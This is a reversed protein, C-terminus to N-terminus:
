PASRRQRALDLKECLATTGAIMRPGARNLLNGDLRFLNARKVATM